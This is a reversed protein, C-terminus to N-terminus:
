ENEEEEEDLARDEEDDLARDIADALAQMATFRGVQETLQAQVLDKQSALVGALVRRAAVAKEKMAYLNKLHENEDAM